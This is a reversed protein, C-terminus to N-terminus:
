KAAVVQPQAVPFSEAPATAAKSADPTFSGSALMAAECKKPMAAKIAPKSCMLALAGQAEGMQALVRVDERLQCEEDNLSGGAAVGVGVVSVAGTIAVKCPASVGISPAVMNPASKVDYSGSYNQNLTHLTAGSNVNEIRSTTGGSLRQDIVQTSSSKVNQNVTSEKPASFDQIVNTTNGVAGAMSDSRSGANAASTGNSVPAVFATSQSTSGSNADAAAQQAMVSTSALAAVLALAIHKKM